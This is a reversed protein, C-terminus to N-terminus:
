PAPLIPQHTAMSHKKKVRGGGWDVKRESTPYLTFKTAVEVRVSRPGFEVRGICAPKPPPPIESCMQGQM